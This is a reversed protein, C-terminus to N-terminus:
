DLKADHRVREALPSTPHAKLFVEARARAEAERNLRALCQIALAEREESLIGGVFRKEGQELISLAAAPDTTALSRAHAYSKVEDADVNAPQQARHPTARPTDNAIPLTTPDIPDDLDDDVVAPAQQQPQAATNKKAPAAKAPDSRVIATKEDNAARQIAYTASAGAAAALGIGAAVWIGKAVIAAKVASLAGGAATTTTATATTGAVATGSAAATPSSHAAAGGVIGIVGASALMMHRQVGREVDYSVGPAKRAAELDGRLLVGIEPDDLLRRPETV